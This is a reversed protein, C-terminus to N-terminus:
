EKIEVTDIIGDADLDIGEVIKAFIKPNFNNGNCIEDFNQLFTLIAAKTGVARRGAIVLIEKTKDYPNKTKVIIGNEEEGYTKKSVSSYVSSYYNKNYEVQQFRVPLKNNIDATIKNVAPGGIIILNNKLDAESIETDLKVKAEPMYNLFSGLFLGLNIAYIDKARAKAPGHPEPSGIIILANLKGQKIFPKLFEEHEKKLSFLKQSEELPKLILSFAPQTITYFKAMAGQIMEKKVVKILGAQELNKIHYYIKQEHVKLKKALEIPYKPEILLQLIKWALPSLANKLQEPKLIRTPLSYTKNKKEVIWQM